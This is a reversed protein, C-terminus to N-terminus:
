RSATTAAATTEPMANRAWPPFSAADSRRTIGGSTVNRGPPSSVIAVTSRATPSVTAPALRNRAPRNCNASRAIPIMRPACSTPSGWLPGTAPDAASVSPQHDGHTPTKTNPAPINTCLTAGFPESGHSIITSRAAQIPCSAPSCTTSAVSLPKTPAATITGMACTTLRIGDAGGAWTINRGANQSSTGPVIPSIPM